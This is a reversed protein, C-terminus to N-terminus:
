MASRRSARKALVFLPPLPAFQSAKKERAREDISERESFLFSLLSGDRERENSHRGGAGEEARRPQDLQGDADGEIGSDRPHEKVARPLCQLKKRKEFNFLSSEFTRSAYRSPRSLRSLPRPLSPLLLSRRSSKARLKKERRNETKRERERKRKRGEEERVLSVDVGERKSVKEESM